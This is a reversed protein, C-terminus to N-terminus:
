HELRTLARALVASAETNTPFAAVGTAPYVIYNAVSLDFVFPGRCGLVVISANSNYSSGSLSRYAFVDRHEGPLADRAQAPSEVGWYRQCSGFIVDDARRYTRVAAAHTPLRGIMEDVSFGSTARTSYTVEAFAAQPFGVALQDLNPTNSALAAPHESLGPPLDSVHLMHARAAADSKPPWSKTPWSVNCKPPLKPVSPGIGLEEQLTTVAPRKANAAASSAGGPV